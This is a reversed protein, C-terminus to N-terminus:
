EGVDNNFDHFGLEHYRGESSVCGRKDFRLSAIGAKTFSHALSIIINFQLKIADENRDVEGSGPIMLVVKQQVVSQHLCLTGVLKAGHVQISKEHEVISASNTM